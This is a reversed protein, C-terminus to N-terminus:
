AKQQEAYVLTLYETAKYLDDLFTKPDEGFLSLLWKTYNKDVSPDADIIRQFTTTPDLGLKAFKLANAVKKTAKTTIEEVKTATPNVGFFATQKDIPNRRLM